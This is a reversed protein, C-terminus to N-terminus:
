NVRKFTAVKNTATSTFSTPRPDNFKSAVKFEFTKEDKFRIIGKMRGFSSGGSYFVIDLQNPTNFSNLEYKVDVKQGDQKHDYGGITEGGRVMRLINDTYFTIYGKVEDATGGYWRGLLKSKLNWHNINDSEPKSHTTASNIPGPRSNLKGYTLDTLYYGQDWYKRIEDKPFENTRFWVTPKDGSHYQSMVLVWWDDEQSLQTITYGQTIYTEIDEAPFKARKFWKQNKIRNDETGVLVWRDKGYIVETIKLGDNGFERIKDSPFGSVKTAWRQRGLSESKSFVIAYVGNGYNVETIKYGQDWKAKIDERKWEKRTIWNQTTYGTGKSMILNWKGNGYSLDSISYGADWDEKIAEKPFNDRTKWRQQNYGIYKTMVGIYGGRTDIASTSSNSATYSTNRKNLQRVYLYDIETVSGPPVTFGVNDGTITNARTKKVFRENVFFYYSGDVHRVTMRNRSTKYVFSAETFGVIQQYGNNYEAINYKGAATFGFHYKRTKGPTRDWVLDVSSNEKGSIWRIGIEIEWDSSWNLGNVQTYKAHARDNISKFVLAGEKIEAESGGKTESEWEYSPANFDERYKFVKDVARYDDYNSQATLALSALLFSILLGTFILAQRSMETYTTM